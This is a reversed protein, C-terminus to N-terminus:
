LNSTAICFILPEEINDYIIEFDKNLLKTFTQRLTLFSSAILLERFYSHILFNNGEDETREM